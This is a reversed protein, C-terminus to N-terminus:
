CLKGKIDFMKYEMRLIILYNIFFYLEETARKLLIDLLQFTM